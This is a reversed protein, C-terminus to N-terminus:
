SRDAMPIEITDFLPKASDVADALRFGAMQPVEHGILGALAVNVV